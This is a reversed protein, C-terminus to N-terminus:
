NGNSNPSKLNGISSIVEWREARGLALELQKRTIGAEQVTRANEEDTEQIAEFNLDETTIFGSRFEEKSLIDDANQDLAAFTQIMLWRALLTDVMATTRSLRIEQASIKGDENSDEAVFRAEKMEKNESTTANSRNPIGLAHEKPSLQGDADVDLSMLAEVNGDISGQLVALLEAGTIAQDFNLDIQKAMELDFGTLEKFGSFKAQEAFSVKGDKNIDSVQELQNAIQNM